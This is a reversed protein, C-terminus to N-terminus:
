FPNPMPQREVFIQETFSRILGMVLWLSAKWNRGPSHTPLLPRQLSAGRDGLRLAVQRASHKRETNGQSAQSLRGRQRGRGKPIRMGCLPGVTNKNLPLFFFAGACRFHRWVRMDVSGHINVQHLFEISSFVRKQLTLKVQCGGPLVKRVLGKVRRFQWVSKEGSFPKRAPDGLPVDAWQRPTHSWVCCPYNSQKLFCWGEAFGM